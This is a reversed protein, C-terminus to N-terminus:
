AHLHFVQFSYSVNFFIFLLCIFPFINTSMSQFFRTLIDMGHFAIQLNLTIVLWIGIANKISSSCVIRFNTHFWLIYGFLWCPKGPPETTFVGHLLGLNSGHSPFIGQLLFHCGVGANKGPFDLSLPAQCALDKHDCLRIHSLSQPVVFVWLLKSFSSLQLCWTHAHMSLQKVRTRRKSVRHVIVWQAVRDMSNELCSYQLKNGNGGRGISRGSGPVHTRDRPGRQNDIKHITTHM